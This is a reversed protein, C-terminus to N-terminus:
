QSQLESTHEESRLMGLGISTILTVNELNVIVPLRQTSTYITFQLDIDQVGSIDLRGSLHVLGINSDIKEYRLELSNM